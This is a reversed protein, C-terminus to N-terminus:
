NIFLFDEVLLVQKLPVILIFKSLIPNLGWIYLYTSVANLGLLLM